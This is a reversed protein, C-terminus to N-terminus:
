TCRRTPSRARARQRRREQQFSVAQGDVYPTIESGRPATTNLVIAYHHWVGASPRQFFVSNRDESRQRDGIGFTGGFEGANPDVLFGGSNENFNPTFEM